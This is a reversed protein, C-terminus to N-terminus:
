HNPRHNTLTFYKNFESNSFVDISEKMNLKWICYNLSLQDRHSNAILEDAWM